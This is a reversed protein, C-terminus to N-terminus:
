GKDHMYAHISLFKLRYRIPTLKVEYCRWDLNFTVKTSLDFANMSMEYDFLVILRWFQNNIM